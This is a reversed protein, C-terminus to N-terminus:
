EVEPVIDLDGRDRDFVSARDFATEAQRELKAMRWQTIDESKMGLKVALGSTIAEAWRIPLDFEQNGATAMEIQKLAWFRLTLTSTNPVPWLFLRITDRLREVYVQQPDGPDDKDVIQEYQERSMRTLATDQNANASDRYSMDLVDIIGTSSTAFEYTDTGSVLTETTLVVKFNNIEENSWDAFLLNLSRRASIIDYITLKEPNVGARQYADDIIDAIDFSLQSGSTAM